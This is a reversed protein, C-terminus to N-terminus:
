HPTLDLTLEKIYQFTIWDEGGNNKKIKKIYSVCVSITNM